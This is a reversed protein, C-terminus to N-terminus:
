QIKGRGSVAWVAMVENDKVVVLADYLNVAACAHNPIIEVKQGISPPQPYGVEETVRVVSHEEYLMEITLNPHGKIIGFGPPNTHQPRDSSLSKSGADLVLRDAAPRSVVTAMITLACTEITAAGIGVLSGDNLAYTGPRIETIGAAGQWVNMTASSGISVEEVGLGAEALMGATEVMLDAESRGIAILEEKTRASHGFGAHTLIGRIRIGRLMALERAFEVTPRGPPLGIRHLGTDVEILVDLPARNSETAVESLRHAGELSDVTCAVRGVWKGLALLRLIKAEQVIPYAILIDNAGAQAMIEAEDLKAVTIGSAGARLQLNAIAACKHTKTHPRLGVGTRRAREAMDEINRCITRYDILAVPTDIKAAKKGIREDGLLSM